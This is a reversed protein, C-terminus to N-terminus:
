ILVDRTSSKLNFLSWFLRRLGRSFGLKLCDVVYLRSFLPLFNSWCSYGYYNASCLLFCYFSADNFALTVFILNVLILM